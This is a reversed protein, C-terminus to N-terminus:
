ENLAGEPLNLPWLAGVGRPAGITKLATGMGGDVPALEIAQLMAEAKGTPLTAGELRIEIVGNQPRVDNYDLDVAKNAGGATAWVDLGAVVRTGNLYIDMARQGPGDFQTEAFKLRLHYSGPAVTLNVTFDPWHVGFKYLEQDPTNKVFVAQRMAWWTKAVADTLSGTRVVYETGPKWANGNSDIYDTRATYGFIIRQADKPGGAQGYGADGTAESYEMGDIYVERGVSVPNGEGRVVVKLTHRTDSLGNLYYLIQRKLPIPSFCDIGVREKVGDVYVDALGGSRGVDGALRVQNGRFEYSVSAGPQASMQSAATGGTENGRRHWDGERAMQGSDIMVQPDTGRISIERAGDHRIQVIADGGRLPQVTFGNGSLKALPKLMVGDAEVTKPSFALRLVEGSNLPADSTSYHIEGAGYTVRRVVGTSRMIHNERNPGMVEPLWGMGVKSM